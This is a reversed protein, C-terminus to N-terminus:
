CCACDGPAHNGFIVAIRRRAAGQGSGPHGVACLARTAPRRTDDDQRAGLHRPGSCSSVSTAGQRCRSILSSMASVMAARPHGPRRDAHHRPFGPLAAPRHRKRPSVCSSLYRELLQSLWQHRHVTGEQDHDIEGPIPRGRPLPGSIVFARLEFNCLQVFLDVAIRHLTSTPVSFRTGKSSGPCPPSAQLASSRTSFPNFPIDGALMAQDPGHQRFSGPQRAPRSQRRRARGRSSLRHECRRQCVNRLQPRRHPSASPSRGRHRAAAHRHRGPAVVPPADTRPIRPTM